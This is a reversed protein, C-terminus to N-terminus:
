TSIPSTEAEKGISKFLKQDSNTLNEHKFLLNYIDKRIIEPIKGEKELEMYKTGKVIREEIAESRNKKLPKIYRDFVWKRCSFTIIEAM